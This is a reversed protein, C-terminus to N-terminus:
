PLARFLLIADEGTDAYYRPRRGIPDFGLGRYLAAAAANTERVELFAAKAGRAALAALSDRLLTIGIGRRRLTEDVAVKLVHGEDHVLWSVVYGAVRDEEIPDLVAVRFLSRPLTLEAALAARTWPTPFSAAEIRAVDDLSAVTAERIVIRPESRVAM